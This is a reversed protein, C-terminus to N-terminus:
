TCLNSVLCRCYPPISRPTSKGHIWLAKGESESWAKFEPNEFVWKGTEPEHKSRSQRHNQEPDSTKYWKLVAELKTKKAQHGLSRLDESQQVLLKTQRSSLALQLTSKQNQLVGLMRQIGKSEFPWRFKTKLSPKSLPALKQSLEELVSKLSELPDNKGALLTQIPVTNSAPQIADQLDSLVAALDEVESIARSIESEADKIQGQLRYFGVLVANTLQIIAIVSATASLPDM